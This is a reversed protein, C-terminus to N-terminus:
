QITVGHQKLLQIYEKPTYGAAAAKTAIDTQKITKKAASQQQGDGGVPTKDFKALADRVPKSNKINAPLKNYDLLYQQPDSGPVDKEILIMRKYETAGPTIGKGQAPTGQQMNGGASYVPFDGVGAIKGEIAAQTPNVKGGNDLLVPL